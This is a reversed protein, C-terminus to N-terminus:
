LEEKGLSTYPFEVLLNWVRLLAAVVWETQSRILSLTASCTANPKSYHLSVDEQLLFITGLEAVNGGGGKENEWRMGATNGWEMVGIVRLLSSWGTRQETCPPHDTLLPPLCMCVAAAAQCRPVSMTEEWLCTYVSQNPPKVATARASEGKVNDALSLHLAPLVHSAWSTSKDAGKNGENAQWGVWGLNDMLPLSSFITIIHKLHILSPSMGGTSVSM